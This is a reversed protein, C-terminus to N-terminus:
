LGLKEIILPTLLDWAKESPHINDDTKYEETMLNVPTLDNLTLFIFGNNIISEKIKPNVIYDNDYFLFAYKVDNGWHKEAQLKINTMIQNFHLICKDIAYYDIQNRMTYLIPINFNPIIKIRNNYYVGLDDVCCPIQTRRVHDPIFIYILWEPKPVKKYFEDSRLQYLMEDAGRGQIARNYIPRGTLKALKGMFSEEPTLFSGYAFSCGMLLIPPKTSETNLPQRLYTLYGKDKLFIIDYNTKTYFIRKYVRLYAKIFTLPTEYVYFRCNKNVDKVFLTIDFIFFLVILFLINIIAIKTIKKM